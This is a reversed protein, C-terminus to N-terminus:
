GNRDSERAGHADQLQSRYRNTDPQFTLDSAEDIRQPQPMDRVAASAELGLRVGISRDLGTRVETAIAGSLDGPALGLLAIIRQRLGPIYKLFERDRPRGALLREIADLSWLITIWCEMFDVPMASYDRALMVRTIAPRRGCFFGVLIRVIFRPWGQVASSTDLGKPLEPCRVKYLLFLIWFRLRLVDSSGLPEEASELGEAYAFVHREYLRADVPEVRLEDDDAEPQEVENPDSARDEPDTDTGEESPDDFGPDDEGSVPLAGRGSLLNLFERISDSYTGALSNAGQGGSRAAGARAQTFEEYSLSVPAEPEGDRKRGQPRVASLSRPEGDQEFDARALTEFAQHMWLDFDTGDTFPALARAVAGTAIERRRGRLVERNTVHTITSLDNGSVIRAFRLTKQLSPEIAVTRDKPGAQFSAFPILLMLRAAGDLLQVDGTAIGANAPRWHLMGHDLEFTGPQRAEIATLPIPSAAVPEPLDALSIADGDIWRDLGLVERAAGRPLRRYICAEANIGAADPRGLAAVTCNASGFLIHDHTATSAVFIKAHTFRQAPWELAVIRVKRALSAEKPFEHAAPDIPLIIRKPALRRSLDALAALDSDWYPSVAVLTQVKADGVLSVFQNGIGVDGPAPLFAIASGDELEHLGGSAPGDLWAARERAWRLADRAPSPEAPVLADIYRWASRVLAREASDEDKCEIETVVEANGALGAATLNASGVFVRASDRGVQLIIKPHFIGDAAPPSHLAYDRGLATPLTSGDTLALAAMRADAVLLLNSAGSAMLQPLLIEEVAAFEIAFSTAIASHFPRGSRRGIRDPLKM